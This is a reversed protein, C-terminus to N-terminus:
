AIVRCLVNSGIFAPHGSHAIGAFAVRHLEVEHGHNEQEEIDFDREQIGPRQRKATKSPRPEYLDEREKQNEENPVDVDPPLARGIPARRDALRADLDLLDGSSMAVM